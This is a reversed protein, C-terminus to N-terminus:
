VADLDGTSPGVTMAQFQPTQRQEDREIIKHLRASYSLPLAPSEYTAGEIRQAKGLPFRDPVQETM